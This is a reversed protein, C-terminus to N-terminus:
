RPRFATVKTDVKPKYVSKWTSEDAVACEMANRNHVKLSSYLAQKVNCMLNIIGDLHSNRIRLFKPPTMNKMRQCIYQKLIMFWGEIAANSVTKKENNSCYKGFLNTWIPFPTLVIFKTFFTKGFDASIYFPNKEKAEPAQEEINAMVNSLIDEFMVSFSTKSEDSLPDEEQEQTALYIQDAKKMEEWEPSLSESDEKNKSSTKSFFNKLEKLSEDMGYTRLESSFVSVVCSFWTEMEDTTDLKAGARMCSMFLNQTAVNSTRRKIFKSVIKMFHAFCLQVVVFDLKKNQKLVLFCQEIYVPITKHGNLGNVVGYILAWSMDVVIRKVYDTFNVKYTKMFYFCFWQLWFSFTIGFHSSSTMHLIPVKRKTAKHSGIIDYVMVIKEADPNSVLQGTGDLYFTDDFQKKRILESVTEHHSYVTFPTMGIHDVHEGNRRMELLDKYIDPDYREDRYIENKAKRLVCESFTDLRGSAAAQSDINKHYQSAVMSPAQTALQQKAHERDPGRLQRTLQINDPHCQQKNKFVDVSISDDMSCVFKYLCCVDHFTCYGFATWITKGNRPNKKEVKKNYIICKNNYMAYAKTLFGLLQQKQLVFNPRSQIESSTVHDLIFSVEKTKCQSFRYSRSSEFEGESPVINVLAKEHMKFTYKVRPQQLFSFKNKSGPNRGGVATPRENNESILEANGDAFNSCM